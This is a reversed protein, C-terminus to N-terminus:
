RNRFTLKNNVEAKNLYSPKKPMPARKTWTASISRDCVHHAVVTGLLCEWVPRPLLEEGLADARLSTEAADPSEQAMEQRAAPPSLLAPFLYHTREQIQVRSAPNMM